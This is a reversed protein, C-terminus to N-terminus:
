LCQRSRAQELASSISNLLRKRGLLKWAASLGLRCAGRLLAHDSAQAALRDRYHAFLADLRCEIQPLVQAAEFVGAPWRMLGVDARLVDMLPIIQLQGDSSSCARTQEPDLAAYGRRVVENDAPLTFHERLFQQCNRRGLQYDHKRFDEHFFGLFGGLAGSAIWYPAADPSHSGYPAIVFRSYVTEDYALALDAPKFRSQMIWSNVLPMILQEPPLQLRREGTRPEVFTPPAQGNGPIGMFPDLMLVAADAQQAARPVAKGPGGALVEHALEFPENNFVGGDVAAFEYPDPEPALWAPAIAQPEGGDPAPQVLHRADYDHRGRGILRPRLFLPFAGSAVAAAGLERWGAADSLSVEELGGEALQGDADRGIRFERYDAHEVMAEENLKRAGLFDIKYPVGRLNGLTFRATFPRRVWPRPQPPGPWALSDRLIRDIVECNLLSELRGQELDSTDLLPEIGIQRVWADYLPNQGPDAGGDASVTGDAAIRVHPFRHPLLVALLATCMAGASAGSAVELSVDHRPVAAGRARAAYWADLAEFLFDLVGATYAGASVAGAMALGIRFAPMKEDTM